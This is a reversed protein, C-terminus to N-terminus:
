SFIMDEILSECKKCIIYKDDYIVIINCDEYNFVKNKFDNLNETCSENYNKLNFYSKGCITILTNEPVYHIKRM